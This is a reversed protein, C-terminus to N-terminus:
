NTIYLQFPYILSHANGIDSNPADRVNKWTYRETLMKTDSSMNLWPSQKLITYCRHTIQNFSVKRFAYMLYSRAIRSCITLTPKRNAMTSSLNTKLKLNLWHRQRGLIGTRTTQMPIEPSLSNETPFRWVASMQRSIRLIPIQLQICIHDSDQRYERYAQDDTTPGSPTQPLRKCRNCCM